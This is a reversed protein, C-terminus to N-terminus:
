RYFITLERNWAAIVNPHVEFRTAFDSLSEREIVAELVVQNKFASSFKRRTKKM